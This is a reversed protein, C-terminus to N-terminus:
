SFVKVRFNGYAGKLYFGLVAQSKFFYTRRHPSKSHQLIGANKINMRYSIQTHRFNKGRIYVLYKSKSVLVNSEYFTFLYIIIFLIYIFLHVFWSTKLGTQIDIVKSWNVSWLQLWADYANWFYQAVLYVALSIKLIKITRYLYGLEPRINKTANINCNHLRIEMFKIIQCRAIWWYANLM